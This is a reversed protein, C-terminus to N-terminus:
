AAPPRGERPPPQHEIEVLRILHMLDQANRAEVPEPDAVIWCPFAWYRQAWCRWVVVWGPNRTELDLAERASGPAPTPPAARGPPPLPLATRRAASPPPETRGPAETPPASRDTEPTLRAATRSLERRLRDAPSRRRDRRRLRNKGVLVVLVM